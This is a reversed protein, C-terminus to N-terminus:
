VDFFGQAFFFLLLGLGHVQEVWTLPLVGDTSGFADAVSKQFMLGKVWFGPFGRSVGM